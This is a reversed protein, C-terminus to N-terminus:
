AVKRKVKQPCRAQIVSLQDLFHTVDIDKLEISDTEYLLATPVSKVIFSGQQKVYNSCRKRIVVATPCRVRHLFSPAHFGKTLTRLPLGLPLFEEIKNILRDKLTPHPSCIPEILLLSRVFKGEDISHRFAVSSLDQYCVFSVQRLEREEFVRGVLNSIEKWNSETVEETEIEILRNSVKISSLDVGHKREHLLVTTRGSGEDRVVSIMLESVIVFSTSLDM